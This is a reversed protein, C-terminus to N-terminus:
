GDIGGDRPWGKWRPGGVVNTGGRERLHKRLREREEAHRAARRNLAVAVLVRLGVLGLVAVVGAGVFMM